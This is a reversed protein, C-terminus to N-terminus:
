FLYIKKMLLYHYRSYFMYMLFAKKLTLYLNSQHQSFYHLKKSKDFPQNPESRSIKKKCILVNFKEKYALVTLM